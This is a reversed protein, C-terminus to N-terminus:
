KGRRDDMGACQKSNKARCANSDCVIECRAWPTSNWRTARQFGAFIKAGCNEDQIPARYFFVSVQKAKAFADRVASGLLTDTLATPPQEWQIRENPKYTDGALRPGRWVIVGVSLAQDIDPGIFNLFVNAAAAGEETLQLTSPDMSLCAEISTLPPPIPSNASAPGLVLFSLSASIIKALARGRGPVSQIACPEPNVMM